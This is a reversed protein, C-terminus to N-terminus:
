AVFLVPVPYEASPVNVVVTALVGGVAVMRRGELPYVVGPETTKEPVPLSGSTPSVITAHSHHFPPQPNPIFRDVREVSVSEKPAGLEYVMYKRTCSELPAHDVQSERVILMVVLAGGTAVAPGFWVIVSGVFETVMAPLAVSASPIM